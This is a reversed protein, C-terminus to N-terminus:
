LKSPYILFDIDQTTRMYGYAIVAFGGVVIYKVNNREFINILDKMDQSLLM